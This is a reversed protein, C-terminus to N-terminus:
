IIIIENFYEKYLKFLKFITNSFLFQRIDNLQFFNTKTSLGTIIIKNIIEINLRKCKKYQYCIYLLAKFFLKKDLLIKKLREKDDCEIYKINIINNLIIYKDNKNYFKNYIIYIIDDFIYEDVKCQKSSNIFCEKKKGGVKIFNINYLSEINCSDVFVIKKKANLYYKNIYNNIDKKTIIEVVKSKGLPLYKLYRENSLKNLFTLQHISKYSIEKLVDEKCEQLMDWDITKALAINNLIEIIQDRSIYKKNFSISFEMYNYSTAAIIQYKERSIRKKDFSVLLHEVLHSIGNSEGDLFSGVEIFLVLLSICNSTQRRKIKNM